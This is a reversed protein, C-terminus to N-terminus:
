QFAAFNFTTVCSRPFAIQSPQLGGCGFGEGIMCVARRGRRVFLGLENAM